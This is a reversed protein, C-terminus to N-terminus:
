RAHKCRFRRAWKASGATVRVRGRSGLRRGGSETRVGSRASSVRKVQAFTPGTEFM